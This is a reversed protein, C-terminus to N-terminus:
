VRKMAIIPVHRGSSQELERIQRTAEYGDVNPM